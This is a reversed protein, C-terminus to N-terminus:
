STPNVMRQTQQSALLRKRVAPKLEIVLVELKWTKIAEALWSKGASVQAAPVPDAFALILRAKSRRRRLTILKLTDGAVKASSDARSHAKTLSPRLWSWNTAVSGM